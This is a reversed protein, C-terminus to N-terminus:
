CERLTLQAVHSANGDGKVDRELILVWGDPRPLHQVAEAIARMHAVFIAVGVRQHLVDEWMRDSCVHRLEVEAISERGTM